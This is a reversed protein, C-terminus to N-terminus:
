VKGYSSGLIKIAKDRDVDTIGFEWNTHVFNPAHEPLMESDNGIIVFSELPGNKRQFDKIWFEIEHGRWVGTDTPVGFKLVESEFPTRDIIHDAMKPFGMIRFIDNIELLPHLIRWSSAIVINAGTEDIIKLVRRIMDPSLEAAERHLLSKKRINEQNQKFWEESNLVGDFDLFIIKM